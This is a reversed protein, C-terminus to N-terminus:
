PHKILKYGKKSITYHLPCGITDGIVPKAILGKTQLNHLCYVISEKSIGTDKALEITQAGDVGKEALTYLVLADRLTNIKADILQKIKETTM